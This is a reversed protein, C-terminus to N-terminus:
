NWQKGPAHNKVYNKLEDAWRMNQRGPRRRASPKPADFHVQPNWDLIIQSWKQEGPESLLKAAWKWKRRRAQEVWTKIRLKELSSEANHTVRKIWDVWPELEDRDDEEERGDDAGGEAEAEESEATETDNITGEARQVRRRGQGLIKRLMRRQTTRLQKAMEKTLTWTESGYLGGPECDSRFPATSRSALVAKQNAGRQAGHVEGLCM